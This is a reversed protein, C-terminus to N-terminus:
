ATTRQAVSVSYAASRAHLIPDESLEIGDVVRTPDFVLVDGDRERTADLATIELRGAVVEEREGDPWALTPDNVDDGPAAFRIVLTFVVPGRALRAALEESLYREPRAMADADDLDAEGAEPLWRYRGFRREGAANVFAFAHIANYVRQAYSAPPPRGISSQIAPMAEPHAGLYAGIKEMDPQGTAPDPARARALELLDEPTRTLFSPSAIAVIDTRAGGPLYLKVAMGRGDRLGDHQRPDGSGNSFRVTARLPEGQVHAARTVAAAEPTATFSGECVVGNAHLARFGPHPGGTAADFAAILDESIGM